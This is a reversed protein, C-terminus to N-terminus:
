FFYVFYFSFINKDSNPYPVSETRPNQTPNPFVTGSIADSLTKTDVSSFILFKQSAEFLDFESVCGKSRNFSKIKGYLDFYNNLTLDDLIWNLSDAM